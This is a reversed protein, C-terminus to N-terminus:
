RKRALVQFDLLLGAYRPGPETAVIDGGLRQLTKLFRRTTACARGGCLWPGPQPQWGTCARALGYCLDRLGSLLDRPSRTHALLRLDFGPGELFGYFYGAPALVRLCEGLARRQHMYNLAVRCLVHTFRQDPFPLDHGSARVFRIADGRQAALCEGFLLARLDADVGVREAPQLADLLRLTQGAGCGVDLARAAGSLAAQRQFRLPMGTDTEKQLDYEACHYALCQGLPTLRSGADVLGQAAMEVVSEPDLAQGSQLALLRSEVRRVFSAPWDLITTAPPAGGLYDAIRAGHQPVGKNCGPCAAADRQWVLPERCHLCRLGNLLEPM